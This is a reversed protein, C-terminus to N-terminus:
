LRNLCRIMRDKDFIDKRVEVKRFGLNQLMLKTQFSYAENIEFYMLGNDNLLNLAVEAIRSYFKLPNSDPVFLAIQPEFDLVNKNMLVRESETVYPPNSIIVDFKPLYFLADDFVDAKIFQVDVGNTLANQSAVHLASESIDVAVVKCAPLNKALSVAICGSGTGVELVRLESKKIDDIAWQVLEETEPRPILVSSNVLFRLGYFETEGLIYQIPESKTLREVADQLQAASQANVLFTPETYVKHFNVKLYFELLIRSLTNVEDAVFYLSLKTRISDFIQKITLDAM